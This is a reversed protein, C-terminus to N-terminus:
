PKSPHVPLNVKLDTDSDDKGILTLLLAGGGALTAAGISTLAIVLGKRKQKPPTCYLSDRSVQGAPWPIAMSIMDDQETFKLVGESLPIRSCKFAATILYYYEPNLGKVEKNKDEVHQSIQLHKIPGKNIELITDQLVFGGIRANIFSIIVSNEKQDVAYFYNHCKNTFYFNFFLTTDGKNEKYNSTINLLMLNSDAITPPLDDSQAFTCFTVLLM